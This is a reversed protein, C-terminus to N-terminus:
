CFRHCLDFQPIRILAVALRPIEIGEGLRPTSIGIAEMSEAYWGYHKARVRCFPVGM